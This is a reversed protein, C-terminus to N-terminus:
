SQIAADARGLPAGLLQRGSASATDLTVGRKGVNVTFFRGSSESAPRDAPFPGYRRSPDGTGPREVKLVDAGLSALLRAGFPGPLGESFDLVSLGSLPGASILAMPSADAAVSTTRSRSM